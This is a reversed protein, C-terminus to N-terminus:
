LGTNNNQTFKHHALLVIFDNEKHVTLPTMLNISIEAIYGITYTNMICGVLRFGLSQLM